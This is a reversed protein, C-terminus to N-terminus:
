PYHDRIVLFSCDSHSCATVNADLVTKHASQKSHSQPWWNYSLLRLCCVFVRVAHLKSDVQVILRRLINKHSVFWRFASSQWPNCFYWFSTTFNFFSFVFLKKLVCFNLIFFFLRYKRTINQTYVLQLLLPLCCVFNFFYLHPRM